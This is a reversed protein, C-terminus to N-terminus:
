VIYVSRRRRQIGKQQALGKGRRVRFGSFGGLSVWGMVKLMARLWRKGMEQVCQDETFLGCTYQRPYAAASKISFQKEYAPLINYM